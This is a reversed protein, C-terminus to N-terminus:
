YNFMHWFIGKQVLILYDSRSILLMEKCAKFLGKINSLPMFVQLLNEKNNNFGVELIHRAIDTRIINDNLFQITMKFNGCSQNIVSFLWLCLDCIGGQLLVILNM